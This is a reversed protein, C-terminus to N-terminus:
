RRPAGPRVVHAYERDLSFFIVGHPSELINQLLLLRQKSRELEQLVEEVISPSSM